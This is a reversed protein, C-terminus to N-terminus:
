HYETGDRRLLYEESHLKLIPRGITSYRWPNSKIIIGEKTHPALTSEGQALKYVADADYPGKYLLPVTPIGADDCVAKFVDWDLFRFTKMDQLDFAAFTLQGSGPKFGYRLDQVDGYVEGYLMMDPPIRSSLGLQEAARWWINGETKKWFQRHSGVFFDGNQWCFRANCGHLKETIVVNEGPSLISKYRFWSEVGYSGPCNKPWHGGEGGFKVAPPPEYKTVGLWEDIGTEPCGEPVDILFGMSFAGRLRIAKVRLERKPGYSKQLFEFYPRRTDLVSDVPVYLKIAGVSLNETRGIVPFGDVEAISLTDANPHKELKEITVITATM